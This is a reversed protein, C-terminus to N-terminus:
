SRAELKWLEEIAKRVDAGDTREAEMLWTGVIWKDGKIVPEGSHLYREDALGDLTATPFILATGKKPPVALGGFAPGFFRTEGGAAPAQLYCILQAIRQGGTALYAKNRVIQHQLRADLHKAQYQGASYRTVTVPDFRTEPVGGFVECAYSLFQDVSPDQKHAAWKTGTFIKNKAGYPIRPFKRELAAHVLADCEEDNLFGPIQYVPPSDHLAELNPHSPVAFNARRQSIPGDTPGVLDSLAALPNAFLAEASSTLALLLLLM